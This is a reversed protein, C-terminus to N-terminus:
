IRRHEEDEDHPADTTPEDASIDALQENEYEPDLEEDGVTRISAMCVQRDPSNNARLSYKLLEPSSEGEEAIPSLPKGEQFPL